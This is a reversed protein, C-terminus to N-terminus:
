RKKIPVYAAHRVVNKYAPRIIKSGTAIEELRLAGWGAMRAVAFIPTFLEHPLGLMRYVLGSYFDVNACINARNMKKKTAIVDTGIREVKKYFEYEELYGKEQALKEVFQSLIVARPDSITYVAHGMGYILGSRDFSRGAIIRELHRRIEAEDDWHKVKSKLFAMM